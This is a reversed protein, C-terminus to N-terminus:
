LLEDSLAKVWCGSRARSVSALALSEDLATIVIEGADRRKGM